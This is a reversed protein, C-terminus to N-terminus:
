TDRLPESGGVYEALAVSADNGSQIIMGQLLQEVSVETNVEVFMRSGPTRWAKESIRVLDSLNIQDDKLAHFVVYATMLKTLSAPELPADAEQEALVNGSAFDLLLFGKAPIKPPAPIPMDAAPLATALWMVVFIFGSAKLISCNSRGM